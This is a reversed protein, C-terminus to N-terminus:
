QPPVSLDRQPSQPPSADLEPTQVQVSATDDVPDEPPHNVVVSWSRGARRASGSAGGCLGIESASKGEPWGGMYASFLLADKNWSHFTLKLVERRYRPKGPGTARYVQFDRNQCAYADPVVPFCLSEGQFAHKEQVCEYASVVVTSQSLLWGCLASKRDSAVATATQLVLECRVKPSRPLSPARAAAPCVSPFPSLGLAICFVIAALRGNVRVLEHASKM